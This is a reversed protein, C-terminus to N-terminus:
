ARVEIGADVVYYKGDPATRVTVYARNGGIPYMHPNAPDNSDAPLDPSGFSYTCCIKPFTHIDRIFWDRLLYTHSAFKRAFSAANDTTIVADLIEVIAAPPLVCARYVTANSDETATLFILAVQQQADQQNLVRTPELSTIPASPLSATMQPASVVVSNSIASPSTTAADAHPPTADSQKQDSSRYASVSMAVALVVVFMVHGLRPKVDPQGNFRPTDTGPSRVNDVRQAPALGSERHLVVTGILYSQAYWDGTSTVSDASHRM